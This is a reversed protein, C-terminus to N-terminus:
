PQRGTSGLGKLAIEVIRGLDVDGSKAASLVQRAIREDVVPDAGRVVGLRLLVDEYAATIITIEISDFSAGKMIELIPM